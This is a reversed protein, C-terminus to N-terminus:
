AIRERRPDDEDEEYHRRTMVFSAGAGGFAALGILLSALNFPIPDRDTASGAQLVLANSNEVSYPTTLMVAATGGSREAVSMTIELREDPAIRVQKFSITTSGAEDLEILETLTVTTPRDHNWSADIVFEGDSYAYDHIQLDGLQDVVATSNAETQNDQAAAPGIAITGVLCLGLVVLVLTTRPDIM